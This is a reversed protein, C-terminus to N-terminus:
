IANQPNACARQAGAASIKASPCTRGFVATGAKVGAFRYEKTMAELEKLAANIESRKM